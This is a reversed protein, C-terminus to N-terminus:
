QHSRWQSEKMHSVEIGVAIARSKDLYTVCHYGM